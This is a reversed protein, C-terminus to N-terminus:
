PPDEEAVGRYFQVWGAYYNFVSEDIMPTYRDMVQRKNPNKWMFRFTM